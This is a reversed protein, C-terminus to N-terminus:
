KGTKKSRSTAVKTASPINVAVESAPGFLGVGSFISGYSDPEFVV